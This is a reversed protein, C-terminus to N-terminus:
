HQFSVSKAEVGVLKELAGIIGLCRKKPGVMELLIVGNHSASRGTAEHLGIRTKINSGYDTLVKQVSSAQKVRDTVHIAVIIHDEQKRVVM